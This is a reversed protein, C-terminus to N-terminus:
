GRVVRGVTRVLIRLDAAFSRNEVYRLDMELKRPLLVSRYVTDADDYRLMREEDRFVLQTPGTIGPRVCLVRRQHADYGAVYEPAEPRPGVLSMDGRLVNLLQPLEDLKTARLVHGVRTIRPDDAATVKLQTAGNARRMTRFKYMSFLVGGKGVRESLYLAPGPSTLRVLLGILVWLPLTVVIGLASGTVDIVRRATEGM